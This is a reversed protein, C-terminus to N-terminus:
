SVAAISPPQATGPVEVARMEHGLVAIEPSNGCWLLGSLHLPSISSCYLIKVLKLSFVEM